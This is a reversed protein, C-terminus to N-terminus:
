SRCSTQKGDATYVVVLLLPRKGSQKHEHDSLRVCYDAFSWQVNHGLQLAEPARVDPHFTCTNDRWLSRRLPLCGTYESLFSAM